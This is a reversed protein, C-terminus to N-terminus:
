DRILAMNMNDLYGLESWFYKKSLGENIFGVKEYAKIAAKNEAVVGLQIRNLNLRHLGYNCVVRTVETCVGRNWYNRNGIVISYIARRHIWHIPGLKVNGIHRHDKKWFIGLFINDNTAKMTKLYNNFAEQNNPFFGPDMYRTVEPDNFWQFYEDTLDNQELLRLGTQSGELFYKTIM